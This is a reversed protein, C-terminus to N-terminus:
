RSGEGVLVVEITQLLIILDLLLSHNKLYYLDYQLKEKADATSAGYPYCLQAWGTVGPKVRHRQEYFPIADTLEQVFIPREPRPGVMSMTGKLVSFLQPLEDLHSRRLFRGFRTIRPDNFDAWVAGSTEANEHMTRFKLVQIAAGNLGVREQRYIIPARFRGTVALVLGCLVIVPSFLLLLILAAFIDFIRKTFARFTGADFGDSFILWSRQLLDVDIKCAEREIFNQVECVEVGSLRCEMLEDFPIPSNTSDARRDDTAIVIEDIENATCYELLGQRPYPLVRAGYESVLDDGDEQRMFGMLIFARQDSRRRMRNAIKLARQGAGLIVVRRKMFNDSVARRTSWRILAVLVFAESTAFLLVGRGEFLPPVLYLLVAMGLTGFLFMAVGTRLLAGILGERLRAEYVGMAMMFFTMMIAFSLAFPLHDYFDPFHGYRTFFGTYASVGIAMAELSAAILFPTHIYHKLVRVHAM